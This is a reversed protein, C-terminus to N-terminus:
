AKEVDFPIHRNKLPTAGSHEECRPRQDSSCRCAISIPSELTLSLTVQRTGRNRWFWGMRGNVEATLEGEGSRVGRDKSISIAPRADSQGHLDRNVVGGDVTWAYCFM